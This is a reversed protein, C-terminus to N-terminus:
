VAELDNFDVKTEKGNEIASFTKRLENLRKIIEEKTM